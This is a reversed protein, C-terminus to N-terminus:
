NTDIQDQTLITGIMLKKDSRFKKKKFNMNFNPNWFWNINRTKCLKTKALVLDCIWM